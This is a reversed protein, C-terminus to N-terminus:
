AQPLEGFYKEDVIEMLAASFMLDAGEKEYISLNEKIFRMTEFENMNKSKGVIRIVDIFPQVKELYGEKTLNKIEEQASKLAQLNRFTNNESSM